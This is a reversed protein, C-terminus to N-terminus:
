AARRDDVALCREAFAANFQEFGATTPGAMSRWLPRVLLGRFTESHTLRTQGGDLPELDFRHRGDFLGPVGLHGLWELLRGPDAATVTPRFTMARGGPPALRVTLRAGDTPDGDIRRMFPNWEAHAPFDTLVQWAIDPTVDLVATTQITRM